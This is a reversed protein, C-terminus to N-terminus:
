EPQAFIDFSISIRQKASSFPKTRHFTHSPFTVLKGPEPQISRLPVKAKAFLQDSPQGLELWGDEGHDPGVGDEPVAVYYVASMWAEPHIHSLQHGQDNLIVAWSNIAWRAPAYRVWPHDGHGEDILTAQTSRVIGNILSLFVQMEPPPEVSLSGTQIGNRTARNTHTRALSPHERIMKELAANFRELSGYRSPVAIQSTKVLTDQGLLTDAANDKGSDRLALAKVLLLAASTSNRKLFVDCLDVAADPSGKAAHANALQSHITALDPALAAAQEFTAIAGEFDDRKLRVRGLHLLTNIDDGNLAASRSLVGEAEEMRKLQHLAVGKITLIASDDPHAELVRDSASIADDFEKSELLAHALGYGIQPDDAEVEQARRFVEVAESGRGCTLLTSGLRSLAPLSDPKIKVARRLLPEAKEQRGSQMYLLGLDELAGTDDVPSHRAAANLFRDAGEIDGSEHALLASLRLAKFHQPKLKLVKRYLRKATAHDGTHHAAAAANFAKDIAEARFGPDKKGM